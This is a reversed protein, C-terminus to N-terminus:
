FKQLRNFAPIYSDPNCNICKKLSSSVKFKKYEGEFRLTIEDNNDREKQCPLFYLSEYNM